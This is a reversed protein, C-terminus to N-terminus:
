LTMDSVSFRTDRFIKSITKNIQPRVEFGPDIKLMDKGLEAVLMRFPELLYKEYNDRNKEFWEKSNKKNVITLFTLSEKSFGTFRKKSSKTM